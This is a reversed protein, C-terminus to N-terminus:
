SIAGLLKVLYANGNGAEISSPNPFMIYRTGCSIIDISVKSADLDVWDYGGTAFVQAATISINKCNTVIPVVIGWGYVNFGIFWTSTLVLAANDM